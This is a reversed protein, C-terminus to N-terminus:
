DDKKGGNYLFYRDAVITPNNPNGNGLIVYNKYAYIPFKQKDDDGPVTYYTIKTMGTDKISTITWGYCEIKCIFNSVTDKYREYSDRLKNYLINGNKKM